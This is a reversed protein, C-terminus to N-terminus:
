RSRAVTPLTHEELGARARSISPGGLGFLDAPNASAMTPALLALAVVMTTLRMM